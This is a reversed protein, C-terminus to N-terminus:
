IRAFAPEPSRRIRDDDRRRALLTAPLFVLNWGVAGLFAAFNLLTNGSGRMRVHSADAKDFFFPWPSTSICLIKVVRAFTQFPHRNKVSYRISNRMQLYSFRLPFRRSTGGGYHYLPIDLQRLRAGARHARAQLDDEESYAFYVEDFLGIRRLLDGRVFLACGDIRSVDSVQVAERNETGPPQPVRDLLRYGIMGTTPEREALAVAERLWRTDLIMTDDNLLVVYDAGDALATEMARNNGAAFGLNRGHRMVRVWPFEAATYEASGDSSANDVLVARWNGYDTRRLSSLCRELHRRGNFTIIIVHVSPEAATSDTGDPMTM